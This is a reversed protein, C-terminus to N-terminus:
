RRPRLAAEIADCASALGDEAALVGAVERARQKVTEDSLLPALLRAVRAATYDKRAITRGLGLRRVREGNDPQDFGFPVVLQPVGARLTQATTGVGGQHVVCAARPLVESYPAYAFAAIEPSSEPLLNEGMLLLARRRLMRAAQVSQAFFDRADRVAASGLTFVIPAESADLFERLGPPVGAAHADRDYYVFGTQVTHAPWDAQPRGLVPSFMALNMTPSFKGEFLPDGGAPLILARRLQAVPEGWDRVALRALRMLSRHVFAPADHLHRTAPLPPLVPADFVSFYSLPALTAAAWPLNLKQGVLPAAYVVEGAVMFDADKAADALDDYMERLHPMFMHRVLYEPGKVADMLSRVLEPDDVALDPRLRHYTLGTGRVKEEYMSTTAVTVRHGRRQLDLGLAIMPHLDGYSGITTLLIHPM